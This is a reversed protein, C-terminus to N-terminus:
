HRGVRGVAKQWYYLSLASPHSSIEKEALYVREEGNADLLM